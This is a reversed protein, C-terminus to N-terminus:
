FDESHTLNALIRARTKLKGINPSINSTMHSAEKSPIPCNKYLFTPWNCKFAAFKCKGIFVIGCTFFNFEM